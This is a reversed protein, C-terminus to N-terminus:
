IPAAHPRDSGAARPNGQGHFPPPQGQRDGRRDSAHDQDRARGAAGTATSSTRAGQADGGGDGDKLYAVRNTFPALAFADSGIFIEDEGFGVALPAGKRAGVLLDDHDNFIMAISYAGPLRRVAAEAADDADMGSSCIATVLHAAIESDTETRFKHGQAALEDRLERFNEIIGNHVIAVRATAHPHANAETPAGHTAWRTHGIGTTGPLPARDARADLKSKGPAAASSRATWWPPSGACDYGRYELRRLAELLFPAAPARGVHRCHRVNNADGSKRNPAFRRAWGPKQM